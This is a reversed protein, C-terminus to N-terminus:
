QIRELENPSGSGATLRAPPVSRTSLGTSCRRAKRSGARVAWQPVDLCSFLRTAIAHRSNAAGGPSDFGVASNAAARGTHRFMTPMDISSTRIGPTTPTPQTSRGTTSDVDGRRLGAGILPSVAGSRDRCSGATDTIRMATAKHALPVVLNFSRETMTATVMMFCAFSFRSAM